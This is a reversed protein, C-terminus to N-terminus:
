ILAFVNRLLRNLFDARLIMVSVSVYGVEGFGSLLLCSAIALLFLDNM